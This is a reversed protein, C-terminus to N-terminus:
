GCSDVLQECVPALAILFCPFREDGQNVIFQAPLRAAMQPAFTGVVREFAGGQDVFRVQSQNALLHRLPLIPGMKKSHGRLQHPVDQDIM